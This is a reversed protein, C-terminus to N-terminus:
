NKPEDTEEQPATFHIKQVHINVVDVTLGQVAEVRKKVREQVNWAVSPINFGYETVLTMDIMIQDGTRSVRVGPADVARRLLNGQITETIGPMLSYVGPTELAVEAAALAIMEESAEQEMEEAM